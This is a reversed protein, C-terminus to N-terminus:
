MNEVRGREMGSEVGVGMDKGMSWNPDMDESMEGKVRRMSNKQIKM